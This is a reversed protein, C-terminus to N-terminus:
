IQLPLCLSICRCLLLSRLFLCLCVPLSSGVTSAIRLLPRRLTCPIGVTAFFGPVLWSSRNSFGFDSFSLRLGTSLCWPPFVGSKVVLGLFFIRYIALTFFSVLWCRPHLVPCTSFAALLIVSSYFKVIRHAYKYFYYVCWHLSVLCDGNVTRCHFLFPLLRM